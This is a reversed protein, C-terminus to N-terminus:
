EGYLIKVINLSVDLIKDKLNKDLTLRLTKEQELIKLNNGYYRQLNVINDITNPSLEDFTVTLFNAKQAIQSIQLESAYIRLEAVKLLRTVPPTFEGFRDRLEEKLNDLQSLKRLGAMRQYVEVKTTADSIYDGDIYADVKIDVSPEIHKKVPQGTQLEEMAEELLQCYMEFGVSAIHGHQQSGLIDGAGRIELDRMAIKFGAGLEAFEKIAQLRKEAVESLVKDRKYVFYAFAMEKSRGVRGRMQYLQSLGFHDANYIIITNANPVDLGNEVISTALLIDQKGEYFEVMARELEDESMRGHAMVINANPVLASLKLYMKDMSEVRNYIFYVQGGRRLERRIADGIVMDNNEIVYTQVPLREHPPTEIVSMDRAGALSMHLTRPIPTASLSLVDINQSLTKIKEKQKVGFRQEEDVILLGLDKFKVKKTNLLAHTGILIDIKGESLDKFIAKQEKPTNFRCLLAINPGFGEFRQKFTQYHQQVLVTTPVLVAVQKGDMVAKFAARMAVETKGFGVDGCLLREMPVPTEMDKKIERICRIQDPTEEYPFAEEFEKQWPTDESFAFGKIQKREAYLKILEKAINEVAKKARTTAKKWALSNLKSLKPVSDENGIYKQLLHVKDTPIYLKDTGAFKIFLYDRHMGDITLTEIGMYKGIGYNVHVVYDGLKIDRFHQIKNEQSAKHRLKKKQRGLIDKETIVVLKGQPLEFGNQLVGLTLLIGSTQKLEEERTTVQFNAEQLYDKLYRLKEQNSLLIIVQQNQGQWNKLEQCLLNMQRHFPVTQKVVVSLLKDQPLSIMRQQILSLYLLNFERAKQWITHWTFVKNKLDPNEKVVKEISDKLHLPEDMIVLSQPPLYDLIPVNDGQLKPKLVPTIIVKTLDKTSRQTDLNFERISEIENDFFEIRVPQESALPFIDILGGRRSYQGISDVKSVQEYGLNALDYLLDQMEIVQQLKLVISLQSFNQKPIEGQLMSEGTALIICPENQYLRTLIEMRRARLELAGINNAVALLDMAPLEYVPIDPCLLNLDQYWEEVAERRPCMIIVPQIAATVALAAVAHKQSGTLGYAYLEDHEAKALNVINKLSNDRLMEQLIFKM